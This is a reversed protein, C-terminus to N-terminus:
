PLIKAFKCFIFAEEFKQGTENDIQCNYRIHYTYYDTDIIFVNYDDFRVPNYIFQGTNM